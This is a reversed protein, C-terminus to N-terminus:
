PEPPVGLGGIGLGRDPAADDGAAVWQSRFPSPPEEAIAQRQKLVHLDRLSRHFSHEM